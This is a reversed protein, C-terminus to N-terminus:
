LSFLVKESKYLKSIIAILVGSYIITSITSILVYLMTNEGIGMTVIDNILMTHSIIPVFSMKVDLGIGVLNLIMPLLTAMNIPTLASQAEKYTKASSAVAICLGSIFIAFVVMILLTLLITVFNINRGMASFVPFIQCSAYVSAVVLVASLVASIICAITVALYKGTIIDKSNIPFTLLTELTGREKEGAIADTVCYIAVLAISMIAYSIGMYLITDALENKGELTEFSITVNNRVKDLDVGENVLYENAIYDNYQKLCEMALMETQASYSDDPNSYITYNVDDKIIYALIEGDDFAADMAEKNDYVIVDLRSLEALESEVNNMECNIGIPFTKYNMDEFMMNYVFAFLLMMAPILLPTMIMTTLSKKDRVMARLEKKVTVWIKSM